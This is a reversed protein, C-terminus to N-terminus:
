PKRHVSQLMSFDCVTPKASDGLLTCLCLQMICVSPSLLIRQLKSAPAIHEFLPCTRLSKVYGDCM